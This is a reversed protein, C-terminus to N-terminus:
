LPKRMEWIEMMGQFRSQRGAFELGASSVLTAFKELKPFRALSDPIYRYVWPRGHLFLGCVGGWFHLLGYHIAFRLRSDPRAFDLFTATGGPKLVRHIERLATSLEPVNRLAYGGTIVDAFDDPFPMANIDGCHYEIRSDPCNRRAETLMEETLDLGVIRAKPFRRALLRAIDGTGTALDLCVEPSEAPLDTVLDRKWIADRGFSLAKTALSYRNAILSFIQRNLRRKSSPKSLAERNQSRVSM